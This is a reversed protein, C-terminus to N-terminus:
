FKTVRINNVARSNNDMTKRSLSGVTGHEEFHYAKKNWIHGFALPAAIAAVNLGIKVIFDWKSHDKTEELEAERMRIEESKMEYDMAGQDDKISIESLAVIDRVAAEHEKTGLEMEQLKEMKESIVEELKTKNEETM